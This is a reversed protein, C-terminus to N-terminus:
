DYEGQRPAHLVPPGGRLYPEATKLEASLTSQLFHLLVALAVRHRGPAWADLDPLHEQQHVAEAVAHLIHVIDIGVRANTPFGGAADACAFGGDSVLPVVYDGASTAGSRICRDLIPAAGHGELVVWILRLLPVDLQSDDEAQDLEQLTEIVAVFLGPNGLGEASGREAVELVLSGAQMRPLTTLLTPFTAIGNGQTVRAMGRTPVFSIEAFTFPNGLMHLSGTPKRSGAVQASMLGNGPTLFRVILATEGAPWRQLVLAPTTQLTSM